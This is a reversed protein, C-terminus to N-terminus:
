HGGRGFHQVTLKHNVLRRSTFTDSDGTLAYPRQVRESRTVVQPAARGGALQQRRPSIHEATPGAYTYSAAALSVGAVAILFTRTM